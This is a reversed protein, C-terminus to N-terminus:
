ALEICKGGGRGIGGRNKGRAGALFPRLGLIGLIRTWRGAAWDQIPHVGYELGIENLTKVGRIAELGVKAKFEPSHVKRKKAEGM